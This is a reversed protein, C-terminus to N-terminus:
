ISRLIQQWIKGEFSCLRITSRPMKALSRKSAILTQSCIQPNEGFNRSVFLHFHPHLDPCLRWASKEPGFYLNTHLDGSKDLDFCFDLKWYPWLPMLRWVKGFFLRAAIRTGTATSHWFFILTQSCSQATVISNCFFDLRAVLKPM